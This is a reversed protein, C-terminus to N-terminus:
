KVFRVIDGFLGLLCQAQNKNPSGNLETLTFKLNLLCHGGYARVQARVAHFVDGASLRIFVDLGGVEKLSNTERIFVSAYHGLYQVKASDSLIGRDNWLFCQDVAVFYM